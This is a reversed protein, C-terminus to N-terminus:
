RVLNIATQMKKDLRKRLKVESYSFNVFEANLPRSIATQTKTVQTYRLFKWKDRFFLQSSM